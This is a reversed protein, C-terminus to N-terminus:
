SFSHMWELFTKIKLVLKQLFFFNLSIFKLHPSVDCVFLLQNAKIQAKIQPTM